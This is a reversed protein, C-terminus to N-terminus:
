NSRQFLDTPTPMPPACKSQGHSCSSNICTGNIDRERITDKTQPSERSYDNTCMWNRLDEIETASYKSRKQEDDIMTFERLEDEEFRKRKAGARKLIRQASGRSFNPFVQRIVAEQSVQKEEAAETLTMGIMSLLARCEKRRGGNSSSSAIRETLAKMGDVAVRGVASKESDQEGYIRKIFPRIDPHKLADLLALSIQDDDGTKLIGDVINKSARRRARGAASDLDRAARSRNTEGTGARISPRRIEFAHYNIPLEEAPTKSTTRSPRSENERILRIMFSNIRKKEPSTKGDMKNKLEQLLNETEPSFPNSARPDNGTQRPNLPTSPPSAPSSSEEANQLNDIARRLGGANHDEVTAPTPIRPPPDGSDQPTSRRSTDDADPPEENRSPRAVSEASPPEENPSPRAVSDSSASRREVTEPTPIGRREEADDAQPSDDSSNRRPPNIRPNEYRSSADDGEGPAGKAHTYEDLARTVMSKRRKMEKYFEKRMRKKSTNASPKKKPKWHKELLSRFIHCDPLPDQAYSQPQSSLEYEGFDDFSVAAIVTDNTPPSEDAM